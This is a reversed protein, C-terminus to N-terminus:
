DRLQKCEKVIFENSIISQTKKREEPDPNYHVVGVYESNPDIDYLYILSYPFIIAADSQPLIQIAQTACESNIRIKSKRQLKVGDTYLYVFTNVLCPTAISISGNTNNKFRLVLSKECTVECTLLLSTLGEQPQKLRSNVSCSTSLVYLFFLAQKYM